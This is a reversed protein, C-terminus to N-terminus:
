ARASSQAVRGAPSRAVHTVRSMAYVGLYLVATGTAIALTFTVPGATPVIQPILGIALAPPHPTGVLRMLALTAVVAIAGAVWGVGVLAVAVSGCLGAGALLAWRRLGDSRTLCEGGLWELASVFLPPALAVSSVELLEHGALLWATIVLWAGAVIRWEYRGRPPQVAEPVDLRPHRPLWAMGAAVTLSIALVALPYSWSRVDFVIPLVAASLAPALRTDFAQLALLGLTVALIATASEGLDLQLLLVGSAAYLPPLVATRWRSGSWGPLGVVWIGMVLAAGEPFIIEHAGLLSALALMPVVVVLPLAWSLRDPSGRRSMEGM